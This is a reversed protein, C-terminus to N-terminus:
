ISMFAARASANVGQETGYLHSFAAHFGPMEVKMRHRRGKRQSLTRIRQPCTLVWPGLRGEGAEDGKLASPMFLDM